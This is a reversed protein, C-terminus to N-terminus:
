KNVKTGLSSDKTLVVEKVTLYKLLADVTLKKSHFEEFAKKQILYIKGKESSFYIGVALTDAAQASEAAFELGYLLAYGFQSNDGADIVNNYFVYMIAGEREPSTFYRSYDVDEAPKNQCLRELSFVPTPLVLMGRVPVSYGTVGLFIFVIISFFFLRTGRGSM